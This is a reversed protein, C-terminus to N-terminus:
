PLNLGEDCAILRVCRFPQHSANDRHDLRQPTKGVSSACADLRTITFQDNTTGRIDDNITKKAPLNKDACDPM